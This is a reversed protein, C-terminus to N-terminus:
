LVVLLRWRWRRGGERATLETSSGVGRSAKFGTPSKGHGCVAMVPPTGGGHSVVRLRGDM